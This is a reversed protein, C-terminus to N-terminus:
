SGETLNVWNRTPASSRLADAVQIAAVGDALSVAPTEEGRAVALLHSAQRALAAAAPARDDYTELAASGVRRVTTTGAGIDAVLSGHTGIVSVQRIGRQDVYDIHVSGVIGTTTELLADVLNPSEVHPVADTTRAVALVSSIEGFWWALYDWEHSYDRYLRGEEPVAFRNAAVTITGYAGLLVQFSTPTGIVNDALLTAVRNAALNHRLVYGVVCRDAATGLRSIAAAADEARPALPKEVLVAIGRHAAQEVQGLHAHDPVAVVVATPGLDLLAEFSDVTALGAMETEARSRSEASADFGVLREVGISRFAKLHQRGISGLGSVAVLDSM